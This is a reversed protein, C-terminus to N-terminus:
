NLFMFFSKNIIQCFLTNPHLLNHINLTMIYLIFLDQRNLTNHISHIFYHSSISIKNFFRFLGKNRINSWVLLVLKTVNKFKLLHVNTSCRLWKKHITNWSYLLYQTLRNWKSLASQINLRYRPQILILLKLKHSLFLLPLLFHYLLFLQLLLNQLIRISFVVLTFPLSYFSLSLLIEKSVQVLFMSFQKLYFSSTRPNWLILLRLRFIIVIMIFIFICILDFLSEGVFILLINFSSLIL